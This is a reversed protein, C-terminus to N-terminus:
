FTSSLHSLSWQDVYPTGSLPPLLAYPAQIPRQVPRPLKFFIHMPDHVLYSQAECAECQELPNPLAPLIRVIIGPQIISNRISLPCM